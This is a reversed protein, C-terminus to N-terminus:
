YRELYLNPLFYSLVTYAEIFDVIDPHQPVEKEHNGVADSINPCSPLAFFDYESRAPNSGARSSGM